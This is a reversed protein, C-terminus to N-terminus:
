ISYYNLYIRKVVLNNIQKYQRILYKRWAEPDKEPQIYMYDLLHRPEPIKPWWPFSKNNKGLETVGGIGEEM